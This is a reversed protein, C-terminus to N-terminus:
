FKSYNNFSGHIRPSKSALFSSIIFIYVILNLLSIVRVVLYNNGELIIKILASERWFFSCFLNFFWILMQLFLAIKIKKDTLLFLVVTALFAPLFYREVMGTKFLFAGEGVTYISFILFFFEQFLSYLKVKWLVMVILLNLLIFLVLGIQDLDLFFLRYSGPTKDIDFFISYFNFASNSAKSIGKASLIIRRLVISKLYPLFSQSKEWFPIFLLFSILLSLVGGEFISLLFFKRERKPCDFFRRTLFVFYLPLLVLVTPKILIGISFFLPSFFNGWKFKFQVVFFSLMSFFVALIGNQGWIASIFISIPNFLFAILGLIALKQKGSIKLILYYILLASLVDGLIAWLRLLFIEGNQDFWIIFSAPPLRFVNHALSLFYRHEYFWRSLWFLLMMLPPQTPFSYIWGERFYSGGLGKEYLVKSWEYSVLLDGKIVLPSLIMRLLFGLTLLFFLVLLSKRNERIIKKIISLKM